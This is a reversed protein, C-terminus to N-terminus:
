KEITLKMIAQNGNESIISAVYIAPKLRAIDITTNGNAFSQKLVLRGTLDLISISGPSDGNNRLIITEHAPNPSISFVSVESTRAPVQIGVYCPTGFKSVSQGSGYNIPFDGPVYFCHTDETVGVGMKLARGFECYEFENLVSGSRIRYTPSKLCNSSDDEKYYLLSWMGVEEPMEHTTDIFNILSTDAHIIQGSEAVSFASPDTGCNNKRKGSTTYVIDYPSSIDKSIVKEIYEINGSALPACYTIYSIVDGVNYNYLDQNTERNITVANFQQSGCRRFYYDSVLYGICGMYPCVLRHPFLYFDFAEYLGHRKSISIRLNNAPDSPIFGTDRNFAKITILKMTDTIGSTSVENISTLLAEYYVRSTDEYLIWTDGVTAQTHITLDNGWMTEFCTSDPHEVVRAGIWCGGTDRVTSGPPTRITQFPFYVTSDAYSRVSDIRIARLYGENNNFYQRKAPIICRYDQGQAFMSLFSLLILLLSKM